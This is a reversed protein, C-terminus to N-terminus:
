QQDKWRIDFAYLRGDKRPTWVILKSVGYHRYRSFLPVYPLDSMVISLARQLQEKRESVKLTQGSQEILRDVEPNNYGAVNYSGYGTKPDISHVCNELFDGADGYSCFWGLTVIPLRHAIMKDYLDKWELFRAQTRIGARTLQEAVNKIRVEDNGYIETSLGEPYGAKKMLERAIDVGQPPAQYGPDFGFVNPSVLQTAVTGRGGLADRVLAKNDLACYVARRINLDLFPNKEAFGTVNLGIFIVGLGEHSQSEVIPSRKIRPILPESFDRLVHVKGKVLADVGENDPDDFTVFDVRKIPPKGRRYNDEGELSIRHTGIKNLFRYPGTGVPKEITGELPEGAPIIYLFTLKNLLVPNPRDTIIDVTWDDIRNASKVSILYPRTGPSTPLLGRKITYVVDAATLPRGNHFRINKRLFFRWTLDNPNEWREALAATIKMEGDFTVLPEYINGQFSWTVSDNYTQPDMSLIPGEHALVLVDPVRGGATKESRCGALCLAFFLILVAKTKFM